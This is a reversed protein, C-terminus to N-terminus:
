GDDVLRGDQVPGPVSFGKGGVDGIGRGVGKRIEVSDEPAAGAPRDVKKEGRFAVIVHGKPFERIVNKAGPTGAGDPTEQIGGARGDGENLGPRLGQADSIQNEPATRAYRDGRGSRDPLDPIGTQRVSGRNGDNLSFAFDKEDPLPIGKADVGYPIEAAGVDMDDGRIRHLLFPREQGIGPRKILDRFVIGTRRGSPGGPFEEPRDIIRRIRAFPEGPGPDVVAVFGPRHGVSVGIDRDDKMLQPHRRFFCERSQEVQKGQPSGEPMRTGKGARHDRGADEHAELPGPRGFLLFGPFLQDPGITGPVEGANQLSPPHGPRRSKRTGSRGGACPVGMSRTARFGEANMGTFSLASPLTTRSNQRETLPKSSNSTNAFSQSPLAAVAEPLFSQSWLVRGWLKKHIESYKKRRILRSSVGKLSNVLASVAVKKERDRCRHM